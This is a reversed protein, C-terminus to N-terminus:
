TTEQKDTTQVWLDQILLFTESCHDEFHEKQEAEQM